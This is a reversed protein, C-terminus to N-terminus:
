NPADFFAGDLFLTIIESKVLQYDENSEDAIVTTCPAIVAHDKHDVGGGCDTDDLVSAGRRGDRCKVSRILPVPVIYLRRLQQTAQAAKVSAILVDALLITKLRWVSLTGGMLDSNKILSRKVDGNNKFHMDYAARCV